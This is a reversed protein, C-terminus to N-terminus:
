YYMSDKDTSDNDTGLRKLDKEEFSDLESEKVSKLASFVKKNPKSSIHKLNDSSNKKLARFINNYNNEELNLYYFLIVQKLHPFIM